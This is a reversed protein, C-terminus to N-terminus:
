VPTHQYVVLSSHTTALHQLISDLLHSIHVWVHGHLLNLNAGVGLGSSVICV